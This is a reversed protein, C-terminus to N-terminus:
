PSAETNPAPNNETDGERHPPNSNILPFSRRWKQREMKKSKLSWAYNELELESNELELSRASLGSYAVMMGGGMWGYTVCCLGQM